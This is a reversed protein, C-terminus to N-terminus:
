RTYGLPLVALRCRPLLGSQRHVPVCQRNGVAQLGYCLLPPAGRYNSPLFSTTSPLTSCVSYIINTKYFFRGYRGALACRTTNCHSLPQYIVPLLGNDVLRDVLWLCRDELQQCAVILLYVTRMNNCSHSVTTVM